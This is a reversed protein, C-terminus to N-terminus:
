VLAFERLAKSLAPVGGSHDKMVLLWEAATKWKERGDYVSEVGPVINVCAAAAREVVRPRNEAEEQSGAISLVLRKDTM